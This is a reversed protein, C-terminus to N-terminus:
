QGRIPLAILNTPPSVGRPDALLIRLWFSSYATLAEHAELQFIPGENMFKSFAFRSLISLSLCSAVLEPNLDRFDGMEMRNSIHAAIATMAPTIREYCTREAEGHVENVAVSIMKLLDPSITTIDILISVMFQLLESSTQLESSAQLRGLRSAISDLSNQLASLFLDEKRQFHRFLTVESVDAVRAIERTTTGYYGYRSFLTTAARVIRDPIDKVHTRLTM